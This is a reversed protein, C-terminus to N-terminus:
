ALAADPFADLMDTDDNDRAPRTVCGIWANVCQVYTDTDGEIHQIRDTPFGCLRGGANAALRVRQVPAGDAGLACLEVVVVADRAYDIAHQEAPRARLVCLYTPDWRVGPAPPSVAECQGMARPGSAARALFLMCATVLSRAVPCLLSACYCAYLSGGLPVFRDAHTAAQLANVLAWFRAAAKVVLADRCRGYTETPLLVSADWPQVWHLPDTDLLRVPPVPTGAHTVLQLQVEMDASISGRVGVQGPAVDTRFLLATDTRSMIRYTSGLQNRNTLVSGYRHYFPLLRLFLCLHWECADKWDVSDEDEDAERVRVRRQLLARTADVAASYARGMNQLNKVQFAIRSYRKVTADLGLLDHMAREVCLRDLRVLDM